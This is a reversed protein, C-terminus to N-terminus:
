NRVNALSGWYSRRKRRGTFTDPKSVDEQTLEYRARFYLLATTMADVADDHAGKPFELCEQLLEAAFKKKLPLWVRNREIIGTVANARMVKDDRGPNFEVVPFGNFRLDQILSQGSAKNEIVVKDPRYRRIQDKAQRRLEPFSWQGRLQDLLIVNPELYAQENKDTMQIHFIGWAQIVSYDASTRKSHATDLALIIEDCVPPEDEDWDQFDDKVFINGDEGTPSQLYLAAWDSRSSGERTAILDDMTIYEPWYSGGEPLVLYEAAQRDLIAPISIVHWQDVRKNRAAKDLLYGAIDKVHWRTNVLVIRSDPLKRSRFGPYYWNNIKERDVDSKATQESLPDDLIGLNFRKGAISQGAGKPLFSGGNTLMWETVGSVDDRIKITPFIERYEDTRILDRVMRSCEQAKDATHSIWMIRWTPHRGLSWAAFMMLLVSKMSGPPLFLMLRDESGNEIDELSAAIAQIHRGDRYDNGNLMLGALLKVFVYFDDRAEIVAKQHLADALDAKVQLLRDEDISPSALSL